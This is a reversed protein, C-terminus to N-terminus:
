PKSLVINSKPIASCALVYGNEIDQASLGDTSRQEVEGSDLKIICRGCMGGRCSYPLILGADESQELITKKNNGIVEKNWSSFNIKPKKNIKTSKISANAPAIIQTNTQSNTQSNTSTTVSSTLQTTTSRSKKIVFLPAKQTEIIEVKDGLKIQGQNLPVLNQGFMVDGAEVQRFTKLTKLPEQQINKEATEPNITTFICRSCPKTVEFEVEGIRIHKWTDEEFATEVDVVINPRFQAMSAINNTTLKQNLYALSQLSLLLIPYGDAFGVHSNKNKVFRESNEGFFLLQCPKNLYRSFWLNYHESSQQGNIETGWVSTNQYKSSLKAYEISLIPMGPATINIGNQTLNAQILCLRPETRATLMEGNNTTIMFRRDFALGLEEVWSTSLQIGSTSKIPYVSISQLVINVV